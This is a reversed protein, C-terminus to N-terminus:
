NARRISINGFAAGLQQSIQTAAYIQVCDDALKDDIIVPLDITFEGQQVQMVIDTTVKLNSALKSNLYIAKMSETTTAQLPESRRVVSDTRYIPWFSIRKLETVDKIETPYYTAEVDTKMVDVAQM